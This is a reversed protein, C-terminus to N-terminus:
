SRIRVCWVTYITKIRKVQVRHIRSTSECYHLPWSFINFTHVSLFRSRVGFWCTLMHSRLLLVCIAISKITLPLTASVIPSLSPRNPSCPFNEFPIICEFPQSRVVSETNRSVNLNIQVHKEKWKPQGIEFYIYWETKGYARERRVSISNTAAAIKEKKKETESMKSSTTKRKWESTRNTPHVSVVKLMQKWM